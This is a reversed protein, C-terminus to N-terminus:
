SDGRAADRFDSQARGVGGRMWVPLSAWRLPCLSQLERGPCQLEGRWGGSVARQGCEGQSHAQLEERKERLCQGGIGTFVSGTVAGAACSGALPAAPATAVCGAPGAPSLGPGQRVSGGWPVAALPRCRRRPWGPSWPAPGPQRQWPLPRPQLM